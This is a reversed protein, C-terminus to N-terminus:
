PTVFFLHISLPKVEQSGLGSMKRQCEIQCEILMRNSICKPKRELMRDPMRDLNRNPMFNSTRDSMRGPEGINPMDRLKRASMRDRIKDQMRNSMRVNPKREPM